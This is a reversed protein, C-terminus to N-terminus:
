RGNIHLINGDPDKFWVGKFGDAVHVDGQLTLGPLDDYREFTVKRDRLAQVIDDFTDDVSWALANAQNTGAYESEYLAVPTRGSQFSVIGGSADESVTFGLVDEYFGRARRLDRTALMATADLGEFMTDGEAHSRLSGRRCVRDTAREFPEPRPPGMAVSCPLRLVARGGETAYGRRQHAPHVTFGLEGTAHDHSVWTLVLEAVPEGTDQRDAALWLTEGEAAIATSAIRRQLAAMVEDRNRVGM